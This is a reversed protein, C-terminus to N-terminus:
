VSVYFEIIYGLKPGNIRAQYGEIVREKELLGIRRHCASPSLGIKDALDAISQRCDRQLELILKKDITDIM